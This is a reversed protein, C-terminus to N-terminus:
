TLGTIDLEIMKQEGALSSLSLLLLLTAFTRRMLFM